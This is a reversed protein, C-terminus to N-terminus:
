STFTSLQNQAWYAETTQPYDKIIKDFYYKAKEENAMEKEVCGLYYFSKRLTNDDPNYVLAKEFNSKSTIFDGSKYQRYGEEYLSKAARHYIEDKLSIYLTNDEAELLSPAINYLVDAAKIWDKEIYYQNAETLKVKQSVKSATLEASTKEEVLKQNTAELETIVQQNQMKEEELAKMLQSESEKAKVLKSEYEEVKTPLILTTQIFFMCIAGVMFNLVYKALLPGRNIVKSPVVPKQSSKPIYELDYPMIRETDEKSIKKFYALAKVDSHDMRLVEKIQENAKYFQKDKIYCLALLNRAELLNPNLAVAKKLRIIAVDDNGQHLYMLAKNYLHISDKYTVLLKPQEQIKEIYEKAKNDEKDISDSIIWEKLALSIKGMEFYVLGLLNRAEKNYKDYNISKTLYTIATSLNRCEAEKYGKYFYYKSNSYIKQAWRVDKNCNVCHPREYISEGCYPCRSEM